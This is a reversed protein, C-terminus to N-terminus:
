KGAEKRDGGRREKIRRGIMRMEEGVSGEGM